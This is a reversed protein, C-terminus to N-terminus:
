CGPPIQCSDRYSGSVAVKDDILKIRLPFLNAAQMDWFGDPMWVTTHLCGIKATIAAVINYFEHPYLPKNILAYQQEFLRDFEQKSTYEYLCCHENELIQRFGKFDGQLEDM